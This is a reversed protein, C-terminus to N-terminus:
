ANKLADRRKRAVRIARDYDRADKEKFGHLVYLTQNISACLLFRPNNQSKPLRLSYLNNEGKVSELIDPRDRILALGKQQVYKVRTVFRRREPNTLEHVLFDKAPEVDGEKYFLVSWSM